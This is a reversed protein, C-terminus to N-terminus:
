SAASKLEPALHAMTDYDDKHSHPKNVPELPKSCAAQWGSTGRWRWTFSLYIVNKRLFWAGDIPLLLRWFTGAVYHGIGFLSCLARDKGPKQAMLACTM